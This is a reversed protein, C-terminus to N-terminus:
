YLFLRVVACGRCKTEDAMPREEVVGPRPRFALLEPQQKRANCTDHVARRGSETHPWFHPRPPPTSGGKHRVGLPLGLRGREDLHHAYIVGGRCTTRPRARAEAALVPRQKALPMQGAPRRASSRSSCSGPRSAAGNCATITTGILEISREDRRTTRRYSCVCSRSAPPRQSAPARHSALAILTRPPHLLTRVDYFALELGPSVNQGARLRRACPDQTPPARLFNVSQWCM